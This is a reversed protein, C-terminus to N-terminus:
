GAPKAVPGRNEFRWCVWQKRDLMEPPISNILPRLTM